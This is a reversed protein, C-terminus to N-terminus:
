YLEIYPLDGFVGSFDGFVGSLRWFCGFLRWFCGSMKTRPFFTWFFNHLAVTKRFVCNARLHLSRLFDRKKLFSKELFTFNSMKFIDLFWIKLISKSLFVSLLFKWLLFGSLYREFVENNVNYFSLVM